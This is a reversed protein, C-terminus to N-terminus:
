NNKENKKGACYREWANSGVTETESAAELKGPIDEKVTVPEASVNAGAESPKKGFLRKLFKM